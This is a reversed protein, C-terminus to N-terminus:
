YDANPTYTYTGDANVVVTGNRPDTTKTFILQDGDIDSGTVTGNLPLDESTTRNDGNGAPVDNVPLVTINVPVTVTGGNGDSISITFSDPGKYDVNPTYTYGGNAAVAVTGNSPGTMGTFTLNDGDLDAGTVTGSVPTDENTTRTDGTGTPADNVPSVTINVTVTTIGSNGDSITITFNDSGQYNANPTYTYTGDANATATGNAPDAAKTFTLRDGDADTGTVRGSVPTEENTTQTDGTGAPADNVPSVTINVTVAASGGNGDSITITFDDSGQYDTDPTYIYTGDVNVVVAGNSPDSAKTFTLHDGDTDTGTVTGNVPTDENTTKADGTGTPADNVPSVTINVIVTASGGNGDSIT